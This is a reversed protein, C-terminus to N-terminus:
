KLFFAYVTSAAALVGLISVWVGTGALWVYVLGVVISLLITLVKTAWSSTGYRSKIGEIIASLAAGVITIGLLDNMKNNKSVKTGM